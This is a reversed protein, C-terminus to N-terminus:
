DDLDIKPKKPHRRYFVAVRGISQVLEAAGERRLTDTVERLAERGGANIRVKVLEHTDLTVAFEDLVGRTLGNQGVILVPKLHHALVKLRRRQKETIPM